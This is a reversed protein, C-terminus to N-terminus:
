DMIYISTSTRDKIKDLPYTLAILPAIMTLFALYVLRKLYQITFIVTDVVLVLYLILSSFISTYSQAAGIKNRIDTMIMDSGTKRNESNSSNVSAETVRITGGEVLKAEFIKTIEETMTMTFSMIYQLIFLICVAALWDGIMKKYKAKEQGTSSIIIRIGVYVLISLLSVLSFLRLAKYWKAITPQLRGAVSEITRGNEEGTIRLHYLKCANQDILMNSFTRRLFVASTGLAVNYVNVGGGFIMLGNILSDGWFDDNMQSNTLMYSEGNHSWRIVMLNTSTRWFNWIETDQEYVEIVVNDPSYGYNRALTENAGNSDLIIDGDLEDWENQMMEAGEPTYISGVIENTNIDYIFGNGDVWHERNIPNGNADIREWFTNVDVGSMDEVPKIFNANLGPVENTFIIGPSFRINFGGPLGEVGDGKIDYDGIFEGQLMKIVLDGIGALLQFVPRFLKGGTVSDSNEAEEIERRAFESTGNTSETEPVAYSITPAFANVMTIIILILCLIKKINSLKM